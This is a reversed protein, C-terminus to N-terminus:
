RILALEHFAHKLRDSGGHFNQVVMTLGGVTKNGDGIMRIVENAEAKTYVMDDETINLEHVIDTPSYHRDIKLIRYQTMALDSAIVYLRQM